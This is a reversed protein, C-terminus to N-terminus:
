SREGLTLLLEHVEQGRQVKLVIEDAPDYDKLRRVLTNEVDIRKGDLELIIDGPQLGAEAAPSGPEVTPEESDPSTSLYAGYNAPLDNIEAYAPNIIVYRIGIYPRLVRGHEIVDDLVKKAENAPIAFGVLQGSRDIATNVGIVQGALNLLPGGSNGPNIAADTQFVEDLREVTGSSDGAAITRGIGSIVGTTVTNSFEGLANGIAVVRSGLKVADSDGFPVTPLNLEDIKVVALDNLPDRALVTASYQTGDSLVVTYEADEDAVVHRNTIIMGDPTVIFGSGAGIQQPETETDPSVEPTFFDGFPDFFFQPVQPLDKSIIISVVAPEVSEVVSVTASEENVVLEQEFVQAEQNLHIVDELYPSLFVGGVAGGILGFILGLIVAATVSGHRVVREAQEARLDVTLSDIEGEPKDRIPEESIEADLDSVETEELEEIQERSNDLRTKKPKTDKEKIM